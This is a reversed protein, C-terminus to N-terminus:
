KKVSRKLPQSKHQSLPGRLLKRSQQQLKNKNAALETKNRRLTPKPMDANMSFQNSNAGLITGRDCILGFKHKWDDLERKGNIIARNVERSQIVGLHRAAAIVKLAHGAANTDIGKCLESYRNKIWAANNVLDKTDEIDESDDDSETNGDVPDELVQDSSLFKAVDARLDPDPEGTTDPTQNTSTAMKLYESNHAPTSIYYRNQHIALNKDCGAFIPNLRRAPQKKGPVM